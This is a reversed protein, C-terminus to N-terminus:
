KKVSLGNRATIEHKQAVTFVNFLKKNHSDTTIAFVEYPGAFDLVEVEDFLLIGINMKKVDISKFKSIITSIFLANYGYNKNSKEYFYCRNLMITTIRFEGNRAGFILNIEQM